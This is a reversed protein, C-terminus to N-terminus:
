AMLATAFERPTAGIRGLLSRMAAEIRDAAEAILSASAAGSLAGPLAEASAVATNAEGLAAIHARLRTLRVLLEDRDGPLLAPESAAAVAIVRVWHVCVLVSPLADARPVLSILRAAHMPLL